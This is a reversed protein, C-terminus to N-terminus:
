LTWFMWFKNDSFVFMTRFNSPYPFNNWSFKQTELGPNGFETEFGFVIGTEHLFGFFNEQNSVLRFNLLQFGLTQWHIVSAANKCKTLDLSQLNFFIQSKALYWLPSEIRVFYWLSAAPRCSTKWWESISEHMVKWIFYTEAKRKKMLTYQSM